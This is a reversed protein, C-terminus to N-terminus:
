DSAAPAHVPKLESVVLIDLDTAPARDEFHLTVAERINSYLEDVTKAQTFLDEGIGRACWFQSDNYVEVKVLMFVITYRGSKCVM